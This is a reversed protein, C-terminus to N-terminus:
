AQARTIRPMLELAFTALNRAAAAAAPGPNSLPDMMAIIPQGDRALELDAAWGDPNAGLARVQLIVDSRAFVDARTPAISAGAGQYDADSFGSGVGAGAELCLDVRVKALQAVTQTFLAVCLEDPFSEM